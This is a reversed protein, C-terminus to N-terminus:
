RAPLSLGKSRLGLSLVSVRRFGRLGCHFDSVGPPFFLRGVQSLVPNGIYRHLPRMAGPAIGGRFRDGIVLDFKEDFKEIFPELRGLDYSGDADGMIVFEGRAQELGALLAAGYGREAVHIVRAGCQAAIAPSGDDSGNDAVLVEGGIGAKALFGLAKEICLSITDAENLCPMLITLDLGVDDDASAAVREADHLPTSLLEERRVVVPLM